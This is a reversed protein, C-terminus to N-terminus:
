AKPAALKAKIREEVASLRQMNSNYLAQLEPDSGLRRDLERDFLAERESCEKKLRAVFNEMEFEDNAVQKTRAKTVFSDLMDVGQASTNVLQTTRQAVTNIAGLISSFTNGTDRLVSM